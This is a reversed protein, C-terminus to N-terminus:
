VADSRALPEREPSAPRRSRHATQGRTKRRMAVFELQSATTLSHGTLMSSTGGRRHSSGRRRLSHVPQEVSVHEALRRPPVAVRSDDRPQLPFLIPAGGAGDDDGLEGPHAAFLAPLPRRQLSPPGPEDVGHAAANVTEIERDRMNPGLLLGKQFIRALSRGHFVTVDGRGCAAVSERGDGPVVFVESSGSQRDEVRELFYVRFLLYSRDPPVRELASGIKTQSEVGPSSPAQVGRSGQVM